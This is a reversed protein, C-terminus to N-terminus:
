ESTKRPFSGAKPEPARTRESELASPLRDFIGGFGGNSLVVIADGPQAIEAAREVIAEVNPLASATRGRGKLDLALQEVSLREEPPLEPRGIPALLAVDAADFAEAYLDQHFARCATASRPEFIAILKGGKHKARMAELTKKVATPHHAFDDYVSVGSYVGRLEQRRKVGRFTALHQSLERLPVGFGAAAIALAGVANELNHVGPLPSAYRGALVGGVFFDFSVGHEDFVAPAAFFHPAVKPSIHGDVGYYYIECKARQSIEIAVDSSASVVLLGSEPLSEVLREFAGRYSSFDPYIDIHDHEISTILAIEASYHLFKATKEWFATDYEDGELVFPPRRTRPAAESAGQLPLRPLAAQRYGRGYPEVVGGIFFGPRLGAGDLLHAVLASTTTKGHTGTIVTPTTGKLAFRELAGAVHTREIGLAESRLVEPNDSRCVNGVIHLDPREEDIHAAAYGEYLRIQSQRLGPGMPPYFALDSGAVDHGLDKLLGALAGMATGAIGSIFIRM